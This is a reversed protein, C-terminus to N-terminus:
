EGARRYCFVCDFLRGGVRRAVDEDKLVATRLVDCGFRAHWNSEIGRGMGHLIILDADATAAVFQEDLRSLDVLPTASGTARVCLREARLSEALVPDLPRCRDLLTVLEPATIDNLSPRSNAALTVRAGQGLMWRVLPLCGLVVDSGANDVFFLVHCFPPDGAWRRWWADVDDIRWPRVPLSMRTQHFAAKGDRHRHVTAKAGLDFLNGALLGRTLLDRRREPEAADIEALVDPLLRLAVENERAKAPAFPDHCGYRALFEERVECLLLIDLPDYREPRRVIDDLAVHFGHQLEQLRQPADAFQARLLPVLVEDFHWRFLAVWYSRGADDTRLDWPCRRYPDDLLQHLRAM